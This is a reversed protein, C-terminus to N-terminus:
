CPMWPMAGWLLLLLQGTVCAAHWALWRRAGRLRQSLPRPAPTRGLAALAADMGALSAIRGDGWAAFLRADLAVRLASYREPLALVLVAALLPVPRMLMGLAAVAALLLGLWALGQGARLLAAMALCAGRENATLEDM